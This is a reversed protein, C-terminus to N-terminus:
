PTFTALISGDGKWSPGRFDQASHLLLSLALRIVRARMPAAIRYTPKTNPNSRPNAHLHANLKSLAKEGPFQHPKCTALAFLSLGAGLIPPERASFLSGSGCHRLARDVTCARRGDHSTGATIV